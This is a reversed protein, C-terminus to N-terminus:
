SEISRTIKEYLDSVLGKLGALKKLENKMLEGHHEDFRRFQMFAEVLRAATQPNRTNLDMLIEGLFKYADEGRGHFGYPNSMVFSGVLSRIRNPNSMSFDPDNMLEKVRELTNVSAVGAQIRFWNDMMLGNGHWEHRYRTLLDSAVDLEANVAARIASLRMTMNDASDYIACVEDAFSNGRSLCLYDLALARSSRRCSHEFDWVYPDNDASSVFLEHWLADLKKALTLKLVTRARHIGDVDIRDFIEMVQMEAPVALLEALYLGDYKGSSLIDRFIDVIDGAASEPDQRGDVVERFYNCYLSWMADYRNFDNTGNLTILRLEKSSYKKQLKVPASFDGLYSVCPDADIDKFTLTMKRQSFIVPGGDAASPDTLKQVQGKGSLIEIQLPIVMAPYSSRDRYHTSEFSQELDVTLIRKEPDYKENVTIVPTGDYEYWNRFQLLDQGSADEMAKVFDECTACGGDFRSIYLKMGKQFNEEGIITHLMRIVEAGKEYVTVTYFNNQEIVMNPRIPHAMPGMDEAFQVSRVVKAEQIREVPRCGLDSSFEQDRFVTLGEKLSLQFWDRCTVRDGTWNHFYEHGIVNQINHFDSDTGTNHDALVYKSNFINLGKNEMAGMNFFDVAVVQFLDLDYELGFREEDWKMAQKLSNVAHLVRGGSGPQAFFQITVHRGSGTVYEDEVMDFKGAVLAFLYSPKSYPDSCVVYHRNNPLEGSDIRNGNSLLHPYLDRDAEIRTTFRASVDPRDLYYTIKRFGEAECQTCFAGESIYLGEYETNSEPSIYNVVKLTFEGPVDPIILSTETQSFDVSSGNLLVSDLKLKEGDLILPDCHDGARAIKMEAEVRTASPDLVFNLYVDTITYKPATYDKRYKEKKVSSM